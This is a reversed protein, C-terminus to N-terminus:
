SSLPNLRGLLLNTLYVSRARCSGIPNVPGYFRYVVFLCFWDAPQSLKKNTSNWCGTQCIDWAHISQGILSLKATQESHTYMVFFTPFSCCSFIHESMRDQKAPLTESMYIKKESETPHWFSDRIRHLPESSHLTISLIVIALCNM